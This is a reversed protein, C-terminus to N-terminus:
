REEMPITETRRHPLGLTFTTGEGQRSRFSIKGQHKELVVHAIALGQGTGKGMRKTTFFPDFVRGQIEPPIGMGSDSIEVLVHDRENWTRISIRGKEEGRERLADQISHVGNVILNLVVQNFEGPFGPVAPLDPALDTVMDASYKWENKAVTITTEICHNVDMMVPDEGIPYSFEKLARVIQAVRDVGELTENAARPIEELLYGLQSDDVLAKMSDVVEKPLCSTNLAALAGRHEAIARGIDSFADRLFRTNDGVYQIPTNIEHAIGAALQGIAELKQASRLQVEMRDRELEAEVRSTIDRASFLVADEDGQPDRVLSFHSEFTRYSGGKTALRYVLPKAKAGLFMEALTRRVSELDDPHLLGLPESSELENQSWGLARQYSPSTYMRRGDRGVIAILDSTHETILKFLHQHRKMESIRMMRDTIDTICILLHVAEEISFGTVTLGYWMPPEGPGPYDAAFSPIRDEAVALIGKAASSTGIHKSELCTRCTALYNSGPGQGQVLPNNDKWERWRANTAFIRGERGVVAIASNFADLTSALLLNANLTTREAQKRQIAYRLSRQIEGRDVRGKVLYEQAGKALAQLAISKETQDAVMAVVAVLPYMRRIQDLGDLGQSDPLGLDLLVAEYSTKALRALAGGLDGAGDAVWPAVKDIMRIMDERMFPDDEVILIRQIGTEDM